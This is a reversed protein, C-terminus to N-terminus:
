ERKTQRERRRDTETETETSKEGKNKKCDREKREEPPESMRRFYWRGYECRM